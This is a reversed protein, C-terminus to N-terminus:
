DELSDYKRNLYIAANTTTRNFTDVYLLNPFLSKKIKKAVVEKYMYEYIRPEVKSALDRISPSGSACNVAGSKSLTLTWSLLFGNYHGTHHDSDLLKKIQGDDHDGSNNTGGNVMVDFEETNSYEDYVYYDNGSGWAFVGNVRDRAGDIVLIINGKTLIENLTMDNLNLDGKVVLDGLHWALNDAMESKQADNCTSYGNGPPSMCHSVKLIVLEKTHKGDAFFDKLNDIISFKGEGRCGATIDTGLKTAHGTTWDIGSNDPQIMPRIDFYRAGLDLQFGIDGNQTITNCESAFQCGDRDEENMGSDHSAPLAIQSLKRDGITDNLREMWNDSSLYTTDFNIPFLHDYTYDWSGHDITEEMTGYSTIHKIFWNAHTDTLNANMHGIIYCKGAEPSRFITMSKYFWDWEGSDTEGGMYSGFTVNNIWWRGYKQGTFEDNYTHRAQFLHSIDNERYALAIQYGHDWHGQDHVYETGDHRICKIYWANNDHSNHIYFCTRGDMNPIPTATDYYDDWYNHWPQSGLKGGPLVEQTFARNGNGDEQGFLFVKGDPMQLAILTKYFHGYYGSETVPGFDGTPFILQIFYHYGEDTKNSSIGMVYQKGDIYIPTMSDYNHGRYTTKSMVPGMKPSLHKTFHTGTEVDHAFLAVGKEFQTSVVSEDSVDGVSGVSSVNEDSVNSINDSSSGCGNMAFIMSVLIAATKLMIRTKM